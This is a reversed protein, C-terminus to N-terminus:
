GNKKLGAEASSMISFAELMISPQDMIGGSEPLHGRGGM